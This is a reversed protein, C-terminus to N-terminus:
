KVVLMAEMVFAKVSVTLDAMMLVLTGVMTDVLDAVKLFGKEDAKLCVLLVASYVAM